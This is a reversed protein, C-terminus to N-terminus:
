GDDFDGDVVASVTNQSRAAVACVVSDVGPESARSILLKRLAGTSDRKNHRRVAAGSRFLAAIIRKAGPSSRDSWVQRFETQWFWGQGHSAGANRAVVLDQYNEIGEVVVVKSFRRAAVVADRLSSGHVLIDKHRLQSRDVKILDWDFALGEILHPLAYGVGFDDLAVRCGTAQLSKLKEAISPFLHLPCSESIELILRRNLNRNRKLLRLLRNWHWESQLTEASLNCGLTLASADSLRELILRLVVYDLLAISGASEIDKIINDSQLVVNEPASIRFLCEHYLVREDPQWLDVIPEQAFGLVVKRSEPVQDVFQSRQSRFNASM